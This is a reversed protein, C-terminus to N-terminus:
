ERAIDPYRREIYQLAAQANQDRHRARHKKVLSAVIFGAAILIPLGAGTSVGIAIEEGRSLGGKGGAQGFSTPRPSTMSLTGGDPTQIPTGFPISTSSSTTQSDITTDPTGIPTDFPVSTQLPSPRLTSSESFDSTASSNLGSTSTGSLPQNESTLDGRICGPNSATIPCCHSLTNTTGVDQYAREAQTDCWDRLGSQVGPGSCCMEDRQSCYGECSARRCTNRRDLEFLTISSATSLPSVVQLTDAM